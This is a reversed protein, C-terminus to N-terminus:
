EAAEQEVEAVSVPPPALQSTASGRIKAILDAVEAFPRQALAQLILNVEEITHKLSVEM